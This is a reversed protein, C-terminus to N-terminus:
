NLIHNLDFDRIRHYIFSAAFILHLVIAFYWIIQGSLLSFNALIDALVMLCMDFAPIFSGLVPHAIERWLLGPHALQKIAVVLLILAAIAACIYRLNSHVEIALVNGIGATGLALGSVAVPLNALNNIFKKM